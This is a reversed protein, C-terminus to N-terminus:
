VSEILFNEYVIKSLLLYICGSVCWISCMQWPISHVATGNVENGWMYIKHLSGQANHSITKATKKRKSREKRRDMTHNKKSAEKRAREKQRGSAGKAEKHEARIKNINEM